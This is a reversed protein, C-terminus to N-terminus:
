FIYPILFSRRTGYKKNKKQAWLYMQGASVFLFFVAFLNMKFVVTFWIWAWTEFTYNPAVFISFLGGNIPVRKDKNGIKKQYDGWRRLKLHIYFNWSESLVFLGILTGLSGIHLKGYVNSLTNDSFFFGYGFYGLSIAGNLIWYHFSNKFINFLPMTALSFQHVFLTEFERKVYHALVMYYAVKNLMPSRPANYKHFREIMDPRTSLYYMLSHILIPGLYEIFFVLRWAVQPGLDKVFLESHENDQFFADNTIPVQKSEKSYTLRLRYKSIGRNNSSIKSLVEELTPVKGKSLQLETDKLSRSRSKITIKSPSMNTERHKEQRKYKAILM